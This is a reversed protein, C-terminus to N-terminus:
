EGKEDRVVKEVNIFDKGNWCHELLALALERAMALGFATTGTRRAKFGREIELAIKEVWLRGVPTLDDYLLMRETFKNGVYYSRQLLMKM